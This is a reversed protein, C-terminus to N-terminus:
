PLTIVHFALPELVQVDCHMLVRVQVAGTKFSTFPDVQIEIGRGWLAVQVRSFDGFVIKNVPARNTSSAPAGLLKGDKWAPGVNSYSTSDLYKLYNKVSPTTVVKVNEEPVGNGELYSIGAEINLHTIAETLGNNLVGATNIIGTPQGSAGTGALVAVDLMEGMCHLLQETIITNANEGQLILQRSLKVLAGATKPKSSVVGIVPDSSTIASTETALWQGTVPATIRPVALNQMNNEIIRIGQRVMLSNPRLVDIAQVVKQGVLNGGASTTSSNLDRQMGALVSWPVMARQPDHSSGQAIATAACLNSEYSSGPIFQELSMDNLMRVLNFSDTRKHTKLEPFLLEVAAANTARAGERAPDVVNFISM